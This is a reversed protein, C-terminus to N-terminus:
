QGFFNPGFEFLFGSAMFDAFVGENQRRFDSGDGVANPQKGDTVVLDLLENALMRKCISIQESLM